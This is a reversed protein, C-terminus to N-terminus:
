QGTGAPASPCATNEAAHGGEPAVVSIERFELTLPADARLRIGGPRTGGLCALPVDIAAWGKGARDRLLPALDVAQTCGPCDGSLAVRAQPATALRVTMHVVGNAPVAASAPWQLGLTAARHWVVRRADEQTASDFAAAEISRDTSAGTLRPLDRSGTADTASANAGQALFRDFLVTVGKRAPALAACDQAAARRAPPAAYSGGEGVAFLAAGGPACTAPWAFPLRGSFDRRPHGAADGVLVDAVGEGESGPLWAAVFADAEAMERGTWLPRGSLLVAVTPIHAARFKRLLGLGEEDRLALDPIDGAYEAYPKEGFVVVAVDPRDAYSGDPSLVASGGGAHAAAAIGAYISTAGPFDSNPFDAGGQWNISWGGAQRAVSDAARGAVLIHASARLPLVGTNGLLVLSRAVAERALARHDPAGILGWNGALARASPRPKDFLGYHAKVRLIRRVATDLRAMPVTGDRVERLLAAYLARWDDPVMYIDLGANVAKPCDANTCGPLQGQANWDGVVLGDFGMDDRLLGTLLARNGHMKEGNISSFSAMVTQGGAAIAARYPAGHTAILTAIDGRTDGEDKGGTGGDGLFHKMTAIVHAQDLFQATGKEGQLGEVMAAGLTSVLAPDSGFSEYSRGWRVDGVVALTPAFTWDIGTAAIESAAVAGIRRVLGADRTAGLGVNHPFITAAGLHGHGHVADTAWLTPIAPEGNALPAASAAWMADALALWAAPKARLDGGPGSNAGNLFSGFRYARMDDPTITSIDPQILQAVKHELSMRAVLADVQADFSAPAARVPVSGYALALAGLAALGWQQRQAATM